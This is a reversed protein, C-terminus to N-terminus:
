VGGLVTVCDATHVFKCQM